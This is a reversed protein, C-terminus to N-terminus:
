GKITEKSAELRRELAMAEEPRNTKYLFTVYDNLMDRINSNQLDPANEWITLIRQYFQEAEAIHNQSQHLLALMHLTEVIDIEQWDLRKECLIIARQLLDEAETYKGQERYLEALCPSPVTQTTRVGGIAPISVDEEAEQVGFLM